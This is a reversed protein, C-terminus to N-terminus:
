ENDADDEDDDDDDDEHQLSGALVVSCMCHNLHLFTECTRPGLM